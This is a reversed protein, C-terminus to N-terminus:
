TQIGPGRSGPSVRPNSCPARNSQSPNRHKKKKTERSLVQLFNITKRHKEWKNKVCKNTNESTQLGGFGDLLGAGRTEVSIWSDL